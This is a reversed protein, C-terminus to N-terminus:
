DYNGLKGHDNSGFGYVMGTDTLVSNSFYGTAVFFVGKDRLREIPAVELIPSDKHGLGCQGITNDGWCYAVCEDDLAIM